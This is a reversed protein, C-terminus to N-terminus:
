FTLDVAGPPGYVGGVCASVEIHYQYGETMSTIYLARVRHGYASEQPIDSIQDRGYQFVTVTFNQVPAVGPSVYWRIVYGKATRAVPIM